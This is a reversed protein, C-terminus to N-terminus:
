CSPPQGAAQRRVGDAIAAALKDLAARHGAVLAEYGAGVPERLVSRCTLVPAGDLKRVNWVADVLAHSGLQSEFRQINAGIRYLTAGSPAPNRYVDIGGLRAAVALSLGQTIEDDLPGAWRHHEKLDVRGEGEIVVLQPRRVQAPVTVPRMEFYLPAGAPAPAGAAQGAALTYFKDDEVSACGAGVILGLVCAARAIIRLGTSSRM